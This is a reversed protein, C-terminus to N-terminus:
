AAVTDDTKKDKVAEETDEMYIDIAKMAEDYTLLGKDVLGMLLVRVYNAENENM